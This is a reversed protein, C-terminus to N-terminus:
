KLKKFDVRLKVNCNTFNEAIKFCCVNKPIGCILWVQEFSLSLSPLLAYFALSVHIFTNDDM